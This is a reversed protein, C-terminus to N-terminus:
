RSPASAFASLMANYAPKAQLNSDLPLPRVPLGDPRPAYSSLWTYRDTLGWTVVMQVAPQQLAVNLFTSYTQAVRADRTNVDAPLGSDQVDLETVYIKLGLAAVSQLFSQFKTFNSSQSANLHAQVGLAGVPVGSQKLRTLLALMAGRRADSTSDDYEMGYDNIVLVANPDAAAATRLATDIYGPGLSRMWVNNRLGDPRGDKPEIPENVVDWSQIKGAYHSVEGTIHSVLQDQATLRDAGAWAPTQLHWVLNHGRFQMHHQTAFALLGDGGSFNFVGPQPEVTDWKLENEPVLIGANDSVQQAFSPDSALRTSETALGYLLQKQAAAAQLTTGAAPTVAVPTSVFNSGSSSVGGCGALTLLAALCM